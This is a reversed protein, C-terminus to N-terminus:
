DEEDDGGALQNFLSIMSLVEADNKGLELLGILAHYQLSESTITVYRSNEATSIGTVLVWGTSFVAEGSEEQLHANIASELNYYSEKSM